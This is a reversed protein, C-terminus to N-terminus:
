NGCALLQSTIPNSFLLGGAQHKDKSSKQALVPIITKLANNAGEPLQQEFNPPQWGLSATELPANSVDTILPLEKYTPQFSNGKGLKFKSSTRGSLCIIIPNKQYPRLFDKPFSCTMTGFAIWM